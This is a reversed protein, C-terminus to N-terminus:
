INRLPYDRIKATVIPVRGDTEAITALFDCVGTAIRADRFGAEQLARLAIECHLPMSNPARVDPEMANGFGGDVNRYALVAASVADASGGHFAHAFMTRELLRSNRWIFDAASKLSVSAKMSRDRSQDADDDWSRHRRRRGRKQRRSRSAKRDM